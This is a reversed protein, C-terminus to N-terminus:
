IRGGKEKFYLRQSDRDADFATFTRWWNRRPPAKYYCGHVELLRGAATYGIITYEASLDETELEELVIVPASEFVEMVEGPTVRHKQWMHQVNGDIDNDDDWDFAVPQFIM